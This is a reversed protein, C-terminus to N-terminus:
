PAIFVSRFNQRGFASVEYGQVTNRLLVAASPHAMPLWLAQDHIIKQADQYMKVRETIAATQKGKAILADLAPDCFRTFNTGSRVAACSFQPTLFNDPDGNDGSWGMFLLDHHGLKASRILEGWEIVRIKANIGIRALDAQLVAAGVKPNPNLMSGTPRTWITTEFGNPYGAETLLRKAAIQNYSYPVLTKAYGLTNPPYINTAPLAAGEFVSSVYTTRDFALNIAQRVKINNFPARQTNFAVFATMFAPTEVVKLPHKPNADQKTMVIDRPRPSLAIACEGAILKQKRVAADPTIAYILKSIKPKEGWYQANANYRIVADRQYSGFIFPGTGIPQTNMREPHGSKQLLDAYEASYLSAFGMTLLSLFTADPESLTFRVTYEDLKDVSQILKPLEMSQAHPFGSPGTVKHWPHKPDLMRGFTFIVDDANFLRTPKFVANAHFPVDRRLHFTYVRGDANVEWKQALAPVVKHQKEDFAVLGDFLVDASANTTVLSNYQVVDFGDPSAETCVALTSPKAGATPSFALAAFCVSFLMFASRVGCRGTRRAFSLSTSNSSILSPVLHM